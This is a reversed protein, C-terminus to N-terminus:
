KSKFKDLVFKTVPGAVGALIPSAFMSVVASVASPVLDVIGDLLKAIRSDDAQSGKSLEQELEQVRQEAAAKNEATAQQLSQRLLVFLQSFAEESVGQTILDVRDRGTVNRLVNDHGHVNVGGSQGTQQPSQSVDPKSSEDDKGM